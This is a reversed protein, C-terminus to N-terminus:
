PTFIGALDVGFLKPPVTLGSLSIREGSIKIEMRPDISIGETQGLGAPSGLFFQNGSGSFVTGSVAAFTWLFSRSSIGRDEYGLLVINKGDGSVDAGTILGKSDFEGILAAVQTGPEPSLNYQKSQQNGRNKSFLHLSNNRFILAECDFNHNPNSGSFESQDPYTFSIIEAAVETQNLVAAIPIKLIKLDKRNGSNNGFDGIFLHTPSAALDEWDVNPANSVKVTRLLIGTQPNIEYVEAPNGGDSISFLRGQIWQLGSTENQSAPLDISSYPFLGAPYGNPGLNLLDTSIDFDVPQFTDATGSQNTRLQLQRHAFGTVKFGIRFSKGNSLVLETKVLEGAKAYTYYFDSKTFFVGESPAKLLPAGSLNSKSYTILGYDSGAKLILSESPNTVELKGTLMLPLSSSFAGGTSQGTYEYSGFPLELTYPQSFDNPNISIPFTKGSAVERFNVQLSNSFSHTWQYNALIRAGPLSSKELQIGTISLKSIAAAPNEKEKCAFALILFIFFAFRLIKMPAPSSSILRTSGRFLSIEFKLNSCVEKKGIQQSDSM